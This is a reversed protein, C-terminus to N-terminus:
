PNIASTCKQNAPQPSCVDRQPINAPNVGFYYINDVNGYPCFLNLKHLDVPM